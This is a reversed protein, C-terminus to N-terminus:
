ISEDEGHASDFCWTHQHKRGTLAGVPFSQSIAASLQTPAEAIMEIGAERNIDTLRHAAPEPKFRHDRVMEARLVVAM